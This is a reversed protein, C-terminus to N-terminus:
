HVAIPQMSTDMSSGGDAMSSGGDAMSSCGGGSSQSGWAERDRWEAALAVSECLVAYRDSWYESEDVHALKPLHACVYVDRWLIERADRESPSLALHTPRAQLDRCPSTAVETTPQAAKSRRGPATARPQKGAPRAKKAPRPRTEGEAAAEDEEDGDRKRKPQAGQTQARAGVTTAAGRTQTKAPVAKPDELSEAEKELSGQEEKIRRLEDGASIRASRRRVAPTATATPAEVAAAPTEPGESPTPSHSITPTVSPCAPLRLIIGTSTMTTRPPQATCTIALITPPM